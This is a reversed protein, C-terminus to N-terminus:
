LPPINDCLTHGEFLIGVVPKICDQLHLKLWRYQTPDTVGFVNGLLGIWFSQTEQKEDGRGVWTAVFQKAASRQEIPTM